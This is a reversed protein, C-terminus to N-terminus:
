KALGKEVAWVAVQTRSNFGLKSLINAVHREATTESIVLTEAIEHNSKGQAILAAIERERATLGGFEKKAARSPTLVPLPPLAASAQKVFNDRLPGEPARDALDQIVSRASSYEREADERRGTTRYLKGLDAHLRWILPRLGQARAVPLTGQLESEAEDLRGLDALALARLRSLRPVAYPGYQELNPTFALLRDVIELARRPKGEKLELEARATWCVRLPFLAQTEPYESPLLPALLAGARALDNQLLAVAALGASAGLILLGSGLERVQALGIEFHQRAESLALLGTLVQGYTLHLRALAERDQSEDVLPKAEALRALAQGYEGVQKLSHAGQLLALAEGQYWNFGRAIQLAEDSVNALQRFDIQGLVETDMVARLTLNILTNVLAQRDDLERLIPLAQELYAAGQIAEGLPYSALGLLDLTRAMGRRNGGERFLALAEQHYPLAEGVRGLNLHWNGVRNLTQALISSDGLDRARELARQFYEGARSLDRSQWLLGLDILAQWENVRDKEHRASQLVAEYDARAGDFEGVLERARARGRLSALLAPLGLSRAANLAHTFHTIAERPAYLAQAQEGARESYEIAKQWAAGEYFHYALQAAAADTRAGALREITQGITQHIVKRERKLLSEYVAERTLAHCFAFQDASEELLLQASVLEKLVQVLRAEDMRTLEQLLEFDFREGVVAALSLVERTSEPLLEVRHQVSDRISRPIQLKDFEGAQNLNKLIEEVFFPNGETLRMLDDLRFARRPELKLSAPMMQEVEDRSLPALRIEEVLHARNLEAVHHSLPSSIEESRYTGVLLIPLASIRRAFFHLLELSPEDSWHLDELVILLPHTTALSAASRALSEFLRHKEAEPTLPPTLQISPVIWSLEPLLKALDSAFAGLLEGTETASKSAFFSRLADIWPAYPFTVDQEFCHGEWLFLQEGASRSRLEAVLRSKGIGAEGTLLVCRGAGQQAAHLASALAGLESERGIM